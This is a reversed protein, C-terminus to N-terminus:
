QALENLAEQAPTFNPNYVLATEFAEAAGEQNTAHLALGQYYYAEELGGSSKITAQTLDLVDQYREAKYYAEFTTFQYWLRRWHLGLKRAEDFAATAEPYRQLQTLADGLNFYAIPDNPNAEVEAQAEAALREYMATDDMDPGLIASVLGAQEVPYVLVYVRNFVRWDADFLDYKVKYDPGNLSDFTNLEGAADDYGTVLRYHGLGDGDHVLWTGVLVPIGNSLFMKLQEISGGQRVLAEFGLTQAYAALEHPGVNKDDQNPKLFQAAEVQTESRGFYSTNMTVTAPGCNNWTQWQHKFNSLQVTEAVTQLAVSTTPTLTPTPSPLTEAAQTPAELTNTPKPTPPELTPTAEVNAAAEIAEDAPEEQNASPLLHSEIPTPNPQSTTEAMSVTPAPTPLYQPPPVLKRYYTRAYYPLYELRSSFQPLMLGILLAITALLAGMGLGFILAGGRSITKREYPRRTRM